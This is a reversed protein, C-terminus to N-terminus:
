ITGFMIELKFGDPYTELLKEMAKKSSTVDKRGDKNIDSLGMGPLICGLIHTHYNGSHFLIYDRNDVDQVHFHDKYKASNRPLVTYCGPPICSTRKQNNDWDLELTHLEFGDCFM